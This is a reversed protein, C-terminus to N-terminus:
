IKLNIKSAAWPDLVLTFHAHSKLYTAPCKPDDHVNLVHKIADAKSTGTALLWISKTELISAIGMSVAERPVEEDHFQSQNAKRTSETLVVKRTRSDKTSGPENFGIHGNQGIGLLQLDIGGSEKLTQEYDGGISPCAIQDRRLGLPAELHRHVYERFSSPHGAPLGVYEDLMFFFCKSFDVARERKIRALEAYVPEMTRGTAVGIVSNPHSQVRELVAEATIRIAEATSESQIIRM